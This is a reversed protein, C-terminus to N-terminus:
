AEFVDFIHDWAFFHFRKRLREFLKRAKLAFLDIVPRRNQRVYFCPMGLSNRYRAVAPLSPWFFCALSFRMTTSPPFMASPFEERTRDSIVTPKQTNAANASPMSRCDAPM